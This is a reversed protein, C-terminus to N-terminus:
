TLGLVKLRHWYAQCPCLLQESTIAVVQIGHEMHENNYGNRNYAKAMCSVVAFTKWHIVTLKQM